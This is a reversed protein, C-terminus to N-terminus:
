HRLILPLYLHKVAGETFTIWCDQSTATIQVGNRRVLKQYTFPMSFAGTAQPLLTVRALSGSGTVPLTPNVQTAAYWITGSINDAVKRVVFDPKLFGSLPQIQVGAASQDADVVKVVAPDFSLRVDAGYLDGVDQVYLDLSVVLGVPVTIAAPECRVITGPAQVSGPAIVAGLGEGELAAWLVLAASLAVAVALLLRSLATFRAKHGIYNKEYRLL